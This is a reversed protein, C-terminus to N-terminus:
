SNNDFPTTCKVKDKYILSFLRAFPDLLADIGDLIIRQPICDYGECNKSKLQKICEFVRDRTMFDGGGMVTKQVSNQVNPDITVSEVLRKVKEEFFDAFCNAAKNGSVWYLWSFQKICIKDM